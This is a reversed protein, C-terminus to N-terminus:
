DSWSVQGRLMAGSPSTPIDSVRRSDLLGDVGTTFRSQLLTAALRARLLSDDRVMRDNESRLPLEYLELDRLQGAPEDLSVRM